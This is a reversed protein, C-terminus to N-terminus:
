PNTQIPGPNSGLPGMVSGFPGIVSGFSGVVSGFPGMASSFRCMVSGFSGLVSGFSGMVAPINHLQRRSGFTCLFMDDYTCDNRFLRPSSQVGGRPERAALAPMAVGAFFSSSQGFYHFELHATSKVSM